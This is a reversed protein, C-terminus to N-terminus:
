FASPGGGVFTSWEGCGDIVVLRVTTSQGAVQRLVAFQLSTPEQGPPISVAFPATQNTQSGAHVIANSFSDFRVALLGNNSGTTNVTVILAGNSVHTTLAIRPRPSCSPAPSTGGSPGGAISQSYAQSVNGAGDKFQAYVTAGGTFDWSASSAFPKWIAGAFDPRNSLRMQIQAQPTLNDTATLQIQHTRSAARLGSASATAPITVSGTPPSLDVRITTM